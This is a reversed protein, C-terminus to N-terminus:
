GFFAYLLNAYSSNLEKTYGTKTLAEQVIDPRHPQRILAKALAQVKVQNLKVVAETIQGKKVSLEVEVQQNDVIDSKRFTYAPSYGYNWDDTQYKTRVLENVAQVDEHQLAYPVAGPVHDHWYNLLQQRFQHEAPPATLEDAINTVVSRISAVAKSQYLENNVKISENLRDLDSNFLLTGHHLVRNKYVHEANGSIKKGNIFLSNSKAFQPALGYQQLVQVVPQTYKQFDVLKGPEGYQIICFNINGLDHYVTGGGSIRRVVPIGEQLVFRM